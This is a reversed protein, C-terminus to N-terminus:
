EKGGWKLLRKSIETSFERCGIMLVPNKPTGMLFMRHPALFRLCEHHISTTVFKAPPLSQIRPRQFDKLSMERIATEKLTYSILETDTLIYFYENEVFELRVPSRVFRVAVERRLQLVNKEDQSLERDV